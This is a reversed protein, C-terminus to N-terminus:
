TVSEGAFLSLEHGQASRFVSDLDSDLDSGLDIWESKQKFTYHKFAYGV